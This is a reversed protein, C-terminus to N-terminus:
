PNVQDDPSSESASEGSSSDDTSRNKQTQFGLRDWDFSDFASFPSGAVESPLADSFQDTLRQRVQALMPYLRETYLSREEPSEALGFQLNYSRMFNLLVPLEIREVEGAQDLVDKVEPEVLMAVMGAQAKLHRIAEATAPGPLDAQRVAQYLENLTSRAQDILERPVPQGEPIELIQRAIEEYRERPETFAEARLASPWGEGEHLMRDISVSAGKHSFMFPITKVLSGPLALGQAADRVVSDPIAPDDLLFLIANLADGSEIEQPTPDSLTRGRLQQRAEDARSEVRAAQALAHQRSLMRSRYLYENLEMWTEARIAAAESTMLDAAGIGRAFAGMGLAARGLPTAASNWGGFGYAGGPPVSVVQAAADLTPGCVLVFCVLM